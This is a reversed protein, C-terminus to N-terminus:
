CNGPTGNRKRLEDYNVSVVVGVKYGKQMKVIDKGTADNTIGVYQLYQGGTEFFKDFYAEHSDAERPDAVIPKVVKERDGVAGKFLCAAVANKKAEIKALEAKKEYGWVKLLKTGDTGIGVVVVEYAM